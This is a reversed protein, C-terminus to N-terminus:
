DKYYVEFLLLKISNKVAFSAHWESVSLFPVFKFYSFFDLARQEKLFLDLLGEGVFTNLNQRLNLTRVPYREKTGSGYICCARLTLVTDYNTIENGM